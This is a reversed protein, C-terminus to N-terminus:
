KPSVVIEFDNLNEDVFNKRISMRVIKSTESNEIEAFFRMMSEPDIGRAIIEFSSDVPRASELKINYKRASEEVLSLINTGSGEQRKIVVGLERSWLIMNSLKRELSINSAKLEEAKIKFNFYNILLIASLVWFFLSIYARVM